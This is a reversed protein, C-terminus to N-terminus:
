KRSDVSTVSNLSGVGQVITSLGLKKFPAEDKFVATETSKLNAHMKPSSSVQKESVFGSRQTQTRSPTNSKESPITYLTLKLSQDDKSPSEDNLSPLTISVSPIGLRLGSARSHMFGNDIPLQNFTPLRPYKIDDIFHASEVQILSDALKSSAPKSLDNLSNIARTQSPDIPKLTSIQQDSSTSLPSDGQKAIRNGLKESDIKNISIANSFRNIPVPMTPTELSQGLGTQCSRSDRSSGSPEKLFAFIKLGPNIAPTDQQIPNVMKVFGSAVHGQGKTSITSVKKPLEKCVMKDFANSLSSDCQSDEESIVSSTFTKPSGYDKDKDFEHMKLGFKSLSLIKLGFEERCFNLQYVEDDHAGLVENYIEWSDTRYIKIDGGGMGIGMYIGCKSYCMSCLKYKNFHHLAKLGLKPDVDHRSVGGIKGDFKGILSSRPIGRGPFGLSNQSDLRNFSMEPSNFKSTGTGIFDFARIKQRTLSDYIYAISDLSSSVFQKLNPAFDISSICDDHSETITMISEMSKKKIDIMYVSKKTSVTIFNGNPNDFMNFNIAKTVFNEEDAYPLDDRLNNSPTGYSKKARKNGDPEFSLLKRDHGTKGGAALNRKKPSKFGLGRDDPKGGTSGFNFTLPKKLHHIEKKIVNYYMLEKNKLLVLM